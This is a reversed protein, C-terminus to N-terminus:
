FRFIGSEKHCGLGLGTEILNEVPINNRLEYLFQKILRNNKTYRKGASKCVYPSTSKENESKRTKTKM